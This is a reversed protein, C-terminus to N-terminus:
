INISRGIRGPELYRYPVELGRNRTAISRALDALDARLRDVAAQAQPVGQFFGDPYTGLPTSTAQSLLHVLELQEGVAFAPPLGYVFTAECSPTRDRPPPLYLAGPTNPIYGFQDYQGNNVASHEVSCCFLVEALVRHLDAVRAFGGDTLPLGKVRGGDPAALERAWAQIEADARLTEDDPYFVGLLDRVYTGLVRFLALADDRYHFGPLVTPDDLGRAALSGIPNLREFSWTAYDRALLDLCGEAGAAISEDIPGGPAILTGRAANNIAITGGFHPKLLEYIPHQAPMTRCAAVWFTEVFLHTRALHALIEHYTGEACQVHTRATLWLWHEDKPTYITPAQAPSQGLQIALPMLVGAEDVWFLAMPAVQFRGLVLPLGAIERYDLLFLRREALLGALTVRDPLLGRLTEDTIPFHEPIETALAILTPNIGDLRQRAFERDQTWRKAVAPKPWLSYYRGFSAVRDGGGSLGRLAAIGLDLVGVAVGLRLGWEKLPGFAEGPPLGRCFPPQGPAQVWAYTERQAFLTRARLAEGDPSAVQPLCLPSPM